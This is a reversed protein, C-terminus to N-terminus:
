RGGAVGAKLGLFLVVAATFGFEGIKRGLDLLNGNVDKLEWDEPPRGVNETDKLAEPIITKLPAHINGTVPVAEEGNVSIMLTIDNPNGHTDKAM